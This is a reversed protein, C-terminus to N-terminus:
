KPAWVTELLELIKQGYKVSKGGWNFLGGKKYLAGYVHITTFAHKFDTYINVWVGATLQLAQMLDVFEAKQIPTGVLLLRAEIVAHATVVAYGAFRAM